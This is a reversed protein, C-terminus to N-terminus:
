ANFNSPLLKEGLERRIEEHREMLSVAVKAKALSYRKRNSTGRPIIYFATRFTWGMSWGSNTAAKITEIVITGDTTYLHDTIRPNWLKLVSGDNLEIGSFDGPAAAEEGAQYKAKITSHQRSIIKDIINM